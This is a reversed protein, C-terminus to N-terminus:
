VFKCDRCSMKKCDWCVDLYQFDAVIHKEWFVRAAGKGKRVINDALLVVFYLLAVIAVIRLLFLLDMKKGQM